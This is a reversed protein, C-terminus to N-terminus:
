KKWLMKKMDNLDFLLVDGNKIKKSFSKAFIAYREKRKDNNWEVYKAKEKLNELIKEPNVNDKWKCEVFLIDKMKENLAVIDIEKDKHWWRGIKNFAAAQSEFIFDACIKEFAQSFYVNLDDKIADELENKKGSEILTKNPYIFRFWFNFYNDEFVYRANRAEKKQTPPFEKRIVHLLILTSLYKSILTKDLETFNVIEGYKNRSNAIAKLINFYNSQERLEQRLLIEAEQCLFSGSNLVNEKLNEQFNLKPNMSLMYAPIGDTISFVKILDEPSYDPFFEILHKFKLPLIKLQGSRRGYLPSKYGLVETEMMGISSGLLVLYVNKSSLNTDWIKQFISPIAKNSMILYPFEDVVIVVRGKTKKSFEDFLEVWDSINAKKFISDSLFEGMFHQMEQINQKDGRNDALFYIHPKNKIFKKMLATKGIRRRGYIVIFKPKNESYMKELFSLEEGRNVFQQFM